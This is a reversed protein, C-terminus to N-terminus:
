NTLKFFLSVAVQMLPPTPSHQISLDSIALDFGLPPLKKAALINKTGSLFDTPTLIALRTQNCFVNSFHLILKHRLMEFPQAQGLWHINQNTQNM